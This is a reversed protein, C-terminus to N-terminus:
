SEEEEKEKKHQAIIKEQLHKPVEEYFAFEMSFSARGQTKSRLDSSYTLMEALPVQARIIRIDGEMDMGLVRGRRGNLDGMIDGMFEEPTYIEVNYIPELLTVGAKKAAEKFAMSGAIKFAMDSSDVPHEKGDLLTVKFDVVPFGALIGKSAADQIGKDVSPRFNQSIAGGFIKDIFEYGSGRPGPEIQIMCEAFQGHGGTQKKHRYTTQASKLITEKYPVKPLKLNVSVGYKNKLKNAIIEIHLQGAGSIVLEKTQPDRSSRVIPEEEMIKQLANSIKDEDGKSKPEIAFSISPEGINLPDYLIQNSKDCLTDFTRTEKLKTVAALDGAYVENIPSLQKGSILNLTGFRELVGRTSNFYTEDSKITGSIVKFITIKGAFIDSITKFVYLSPPSKEDTEFSLPEKSLPNKGEWKRMKPSPAIQVFSELLPKLGILQTASTFFVPFIERKLFSTKLGSFIEEEELTGKEFFKEMLKEDSEAVKEILEERIKEITGKLNEPIDEITEKPNQNENYYAKLDLINVVGKFNAEKGIPYSLPIVKNGYKNKLQELVKLPDSNEKDLKNVVFLLPVNFSSSIKFIKDTQIEIGQVGNVFLAVTDSCKIGPITESLFMSFGPTSFFNIKTDKYDIWALSLYISIKRAIEEEDFDTITNGDEVRLFRNQAGSLYLLASLLTTKGTDNHGAFCINRLKDPL